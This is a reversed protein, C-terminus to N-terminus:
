PVEFKRGHRELPERYTVCQTFPPRLADSPLSSTQETKSLQSRQNRGIYMYRGCTTGALAQHVPAGGLGWQQHAREYKHQLWECGYM